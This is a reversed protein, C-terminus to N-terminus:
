KRFFYSSRHGPRLPVKRRRAAPPFFPPPIRQGDRVSFPLASTEPAKANRTRLGATSFLSNEKGKGNNSPLTGPSSTHAEPCTLPRTDRKPAHSRGHTASRPMHAAHTASRLMHAATHRAESCTLPRTDRKPAHSRGHTASRPMHAATHRAESCTLPRTDRKPAHAHGHTASRLM